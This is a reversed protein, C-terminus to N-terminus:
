LRDLARTFGELDRDKRMRQKKRQVAVEIATIAAPHERCRRPASAMERTITMHYRKCWKRQGLLHPCTECTNQPIYFDNHHTITM